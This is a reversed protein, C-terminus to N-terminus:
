AKDNNGDGVEMYPQDTQTSTAAKNGEAAEYIKLAKSHPIKFYGCLAIAVKLDKIQKEQNATSDKLHENLDSLSNRWGNMAKKLEKRLGICEQRKEEFRIWGDLWNKIKDLM